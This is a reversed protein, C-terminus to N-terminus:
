ARSRVPRDSEDPRSVTAALRPIQRLYDVAQFFAGFFIIWFIIEVSDHGACQGCVDSEGAALKIKPV